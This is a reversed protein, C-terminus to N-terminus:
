GHELVYEYAGKPFGGYCANDHPDCEVVQEVSLPVPAKLKDKNALYWISEMNGVASEAWCSGCSAQDKVPTVAGRDRWDFAAPTEASQDLIPPTGGGRKGEDPDMTNPLYLDGFEQVSLDSFRTHGYVASDGQSNLKDIMNTNEKYNLIARQWAHESTYKKAHGTAWDLFDQPVWSPAAFAGPVALLLSLRM